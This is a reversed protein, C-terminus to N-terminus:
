RVSRESLTLQNWRSAVVDNARMRRISIPVTATGGM